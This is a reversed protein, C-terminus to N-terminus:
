PPNAGLLDLAHGTLDQWLSAIPRPLTTVIHRIEGPSVHEVLLHIVARLVDVPDLRPDLMLENKTRTM